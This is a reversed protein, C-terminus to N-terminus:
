TEEWHLSMRSRVVDEIGKLWHVYEWSLDIKQDLM